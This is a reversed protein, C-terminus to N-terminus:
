STLLALSVSTLSLQIIFISLVYGLLYFFSFECHSNDSPSMKFVCEFGTTFYAVVFDLFSGDVADALPSGGYNEYEKSVALIAPLILIGVILQSVSVRFSFLAQDLPQSRIISEKLAISIADFVACLLFLLTYALYPTNQFSATTFDFMSICVAAFIVLGAISHTKYHKLGICASRVLM